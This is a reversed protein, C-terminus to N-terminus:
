NERLDDTDELYAFLRMANLTVWKDAKGVPPKRMNGYLMGTKASELNWKGNKDQKPMIINFAEGTRSDQLFGAQAVALLGYLIDYQAIVPYGLLRFDENWGYRPRIPTDDLTKFLKHRLFFDAASRISKTVSDDGTKYMELAMLCAITAYFCSSVSKDHDRKIGSGSRNFFVFKLYDCYGNLPCHLWGGDHRQNRLIWQIGREMSAGYFGAVLLYKMMDGTICAAPTEPKWDFTFGGSDTQCRQIIFAGTKEIESTRKDLGRAVAESFCWMSGRYFVDFNKLDGLIDGTRNKMLNAIAPSAFLLDYEHSINKEHIIDRLVLYRISPDSEELLWPLPNTLLYKNNM